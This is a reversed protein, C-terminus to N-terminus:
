NSDLELIEKVYERIPNSFRNLDSIPNQNSLFILNEVEIEENKEKLLEIYNRHHKEIEVKSMNLNGVAIIGYAHRKNHPIELYKIEYDMIEKKDNLDINIEEKLERKITNIIDIKNNIIDEKDPGGGFIQICHPLSTQESSEGLVYYDDKTRLLIGGWLCSCWYKKDDIVKREDYLYHSYKTKKCTLILKNDLEELNSVCIFDGDWIYPENQEIENWFQQIDKKLEQPLELPIKDIIIEIENNISNVM